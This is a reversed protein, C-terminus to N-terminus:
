NLPFKQDTCRADSPGSASLWVTDKCVYWQSDQRSQVCTTEPVMHGLTASSCSDTPSSGGNAIARKVSPVQATAVFKYGEEILQPVLVKVMDITSSHIDHMLVIGRKRTHIEQMYLAACSAVSIKKSWCAWDAASTATLDGGIDWFIGGVYKSMKSGNIAKAVTGNWGGFPARFLFPGSRDALSVFADTDAVEKVIQAAPLKTLLLHNQSHNALQHGRGVVKDVAQQRGPVKMGNIFFTAKIGKSALYDALESTRPGPGDDFTLSLTKAPLESGTLQHESVIEEQAVGDGVPGDEDFGTDAACGALGGCAVTLFLSSFLASASLRRPLM